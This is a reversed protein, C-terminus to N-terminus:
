IGISGVTGGIVTVPLDTVFLHATQHADLFSFHKPLYGFFLSRLTDYCIRETEHIFFVARYVRSEFVGIARSGIGDISLSLTPHFTHLQLLSLRGQTFPPPVAFGHRLSQQSTNSDPLIEIATVHCFLGGTL